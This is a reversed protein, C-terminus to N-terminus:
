CCTKTIERDVISRKMAELSTGNTRRVVIPLTVLCSPGNEPEAPPLRGLSSALMNDSIHARASKFQINPRPLLPELSHLYM